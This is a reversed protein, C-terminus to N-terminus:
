FLNTHPAFLSPIARLGSASCQLVSKKKQDTPVIRAGESPGSPEQVRLGRDLRKDANWNLCAFFCPSASGSCRIRLHRSTTAVCRSPRIGVVGLPLNFVYAKFFHPLWLNCPRPEGTSRSWREAYSESHASSVSSAYVTSWRREPCRIGHLRVANSGPRENPACEHESSIHHRRVTRHHSVFATGRM